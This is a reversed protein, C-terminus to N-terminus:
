LIPGMQAWLGMHVREFIMNTRMHKLKNLMQPLQKNTKAHKTNTTAHKKIITAHKTITQAFPMRHKRITRTQKVHETMQKHHTQM